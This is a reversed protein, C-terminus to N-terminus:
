FIDDEIKVLIANEYQFWRYPINRVIIPTKVEKRPKIDRLSAKGKVKYFDQLDEKSLFWYITYGDKTYDQFGFKSIPLTFQQESYKHPCLIDMSHRSVLLGGYVNIYGAVVESVRELNSLAQGISGVSVLVRWKYTKIYRDFQIM